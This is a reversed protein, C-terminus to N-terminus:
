VWTRTRSTEFAGAYTIADTLTVLVTVGDTDYMRWQESTPFAGSYTIALDVIRQTRTADEWWDVGTPFAGSYTVDKVAGSPFGDAPGDDIFHILDRLAKHQPETIGGGGGPLSGVTIAKKANGAASDEIILLDAAVPTAKTAIAAIEGAIDDHIASGDAGDVVTPNPYTGALQGGAPGTPIRADSLRADNGETVTNATSGYIPELVANINDGSNTIGNAGAVTDTQGGPAPYPLSALTISKKANAAAADEIVLLDAGTPTAKTPITAIEGSLNRHIASGDAGDVVTPNPYTGALEGGAAGTPIRADSLRPDNGETVTNAVAGFVPELVANINDGTNQVGNAGTVTDTQGGPAPTPLSGITIRKKANAASADEIVLVDSAGPVAKLAIAAIEGAIDDHIASGDAGDVVTPNPYTGALQGGAPGIPARGDSLRPDNGETVTNATTGYIPEIVANVDNGTNQVGNAGAVTDTQGISGAVLDIQALAAEVDGPSGIEPYTGSVSVQSATHHTALEASLDGHNHRHDIRAAQDNAGADVAGLPQVDLTGGYGVEIDDPNVIISANAANVDITSGTKTLGTGAYVPGPQTYNVVYRDVIVKSTTDGVTGVAVPGGAVQVSSCVVPKGVTSVVVPVEVISSEICDAM